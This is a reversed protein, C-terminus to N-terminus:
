LGDGLALAHQEEDDGLVSLPPATGYMVRQIVIVAFPAQNICDQILFSNLLGCDVSLQFVAGMKFQLPSDKLFFYV